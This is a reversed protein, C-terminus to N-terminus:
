RVIPAPSSPPASEDPLSLPPRPAAGAGPPQCEGEDEDETQRPILFWCEVELLRGSAFNSGPKKVSSRTRSRLVLVLALWGDRRRRRSTCSCTSRRFHPRARCTSAQGCAVAGGGLCVKKM